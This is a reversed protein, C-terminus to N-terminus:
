DNLGDWEEKLEGREFARDFLADAVSLGVSRVIEDETVDEGEVEYTPEGDQYWASGGPLHDGTEATAPITISVTVGARTVMTATLEGTM